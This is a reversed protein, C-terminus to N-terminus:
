LVEKKEVTIVYHNQRRDPIYEVLRRDAIFFGAERLLSVLQNKKTQYNGVYYLNVDAASTETLFDDDAVDDNREGLPTIVIHNPNKGTYVCAEIDLGAPSLVTDLETIISM